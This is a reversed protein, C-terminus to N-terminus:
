IGMPHTEHTEGQTLGLAEKIWHELQAQASAMDGFKRRGEHGPRHNVVWYTSEGARHGGGDDCYAKFQALDPCIKLLTNIRDMWVACIMGKPDNVAAHLAYEAFDAAIKELDVVM